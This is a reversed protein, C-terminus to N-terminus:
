GWFLLVARRDRWWSFVAVAPECEPWAKASRGFSILPRCPSLVRALYTDFDYEPTLEHTLVLAQGYELGSGSGIRKM